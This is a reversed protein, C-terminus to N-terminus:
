ARSEGLGRSPDRAVRFKLEFTKRSRFIDSPVADRYEEFTDVAKLQSGRLSKPQSDKFYIPLM